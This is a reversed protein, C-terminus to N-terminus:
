IDEKRAYNMRELIILRQTNTKQIKPNFSTAFPCPGGVAGGAFIGIGTAFNAAAPNWVCERERYHTGPTHTQVTGSSMGASTGSPSSADRTPLVDTEYLTGGSTSTAGLRNLAGQGSTNGGWIPASTVSYPRTTVTVPQSGVTIEDIDDVMPPYIRLEYTVRLQDENTKTITTPNGLEDRFLQRNWLTGGTGSSYFGLEALNGNAESDTFVRTDTRYWYEVLSGSGVMTRTTGFGGNSTTRGIEAELATDSVSPESSGTGVALATLMTELPTGAAVAELGSDTILNRFRLRRKVLGSRAHILEVTFLGELGVTHGLVGLETYRRLNIFPAEPIWIRRRGESM